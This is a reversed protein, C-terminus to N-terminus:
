DIHNTEMQIIPAVTERVIARFWDHKIQAISPSVTTAHCSCGCNCDRRDYQTFM